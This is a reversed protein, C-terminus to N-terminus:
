AAEASAPRLVYLLNGECNWQREAGTDYDVAFKKEISLGATLSQARFEQDTFVHGVTTCRTEGVNWTVVVDGNKDDPSVWDRLFRVATRLPGYHRANYRHNVDVFITGKRSVLRGIQRLVEIRSRSSSIHGLVNWLCTIVDFEAQVSHLEEARMTWFTVDAGGNGQMALSPELLALEAIGRAQAIRRARTGDGSGVDLLSRSGAPIESLVLRDIGELYPRRQEALRAFVPAIRDYAAVPDSYM